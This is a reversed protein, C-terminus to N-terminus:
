ILLHKNPHIKMPFFFNDGSIELEQFSCGHKPPCTFVLRHTTSAHKSKAFHINNKLDPLFGWVNNYVKSVTAQNYNEHIM